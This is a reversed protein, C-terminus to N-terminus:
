YSGIRSRAALSVSRDQERWQQPSLGTWQKFSRTFASHESYGLLQAVEAIALRPDRLYGEAMQRRVLALETRFTTGARTLRRQITRSSQCLKAAVAEIDPEGDHLLKAAARRVQEVIPEEQPLLALMQEAQREMVESLSADASQIPLALNETSNRIITEDLSPDFTLPCNFYDLYAQTNAPKEYPFQIFVPSMQAGALNRGFQVAATIGVTDALMGPRRESVNWVLEVYGDGTRQTMPHVDSILRQYRGMREIGAGVTECAMLVYGMVGLHRPAITQGLHLGLLPDDLHRAAREVMDVWRDINVGGLLHAQPLPRSQGLVSKADVGRADLYEYLLQAFTEPITRTYLPKGM